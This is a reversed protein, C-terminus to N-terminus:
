LRAVIYQDPDNKMFNHEVVSSAVAVRILMGYRDRLANSTPLSAMMLNATDM